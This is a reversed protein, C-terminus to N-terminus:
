EPKVTYKAGTYESQYNNLDNKVCRVYADDEFANSTTISCDDDCSWRHNDGM